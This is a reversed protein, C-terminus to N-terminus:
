ETGRGSGVVDRTGLNNERHGDPWLWEQWSFSDAIVEMYVDRGVLVYHKPAEAIVMRASSLWDSQTAVYFGSDPCTGTERWTRARWDQYGDDPGDYGGLIEFGSAEIDEEDSTTGARAHSAMHFRLEIRRMDSQSEYGLHWGGFVISCEPAVDTEAYHLTLGSMSPSVWWPVKCPKIVVSMVVGFLNRSHWAGFAVAPAITRRQRWMRPETM